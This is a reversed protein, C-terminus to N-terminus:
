YKLNVCIRHDLWVGPDNWVTSINYDFSWYKKKTRFPRQMIGEGFSVGAGFYNLNAGFRIALKNAIITAGALGINLEDSKNYTISMIPFFFGSGSVFNYKNWSFGARVTTDVGIEGYIKKPYLNIISVGSVFGPEKIFFAGIDVSSAEYTNDLVFLTPDLFDRPIDSFKLIYKKVSMGVFVNRGYLSRAYTAQFMNEKVFTNYDFLYRGLGINQNKSLPISISAMNQVINVNSLGMFPRQYAFVINNDVLYGIGAPNYFMIDSDGMFTHYGGGLSASNPALFEQEFFASSFSVCYLILFFIDRISNKKYIYLLRM